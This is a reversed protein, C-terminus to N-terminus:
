RLVSSATTSFLKRVATMLGSMGGGIIGIRKSKTQAVFISDPEKQQLYEVGDFWPGEPDAVHAFSKTQRRTKRRAVTVPKSTGVLVDDAFAHLCQGSPVNSPPLWVFRTPRNGKYSLHQKALPHHGLYTEGLSHHSVNLSELNCDGYHISLRGDIPQKYELHVNHMGGAEVTGPEQFVIQQEPAAHSVTLITALGLLL